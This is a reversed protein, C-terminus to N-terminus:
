HELIRVLDATLAALDPEAALCMGDKHATWFTGTWDIRIDENGELVEALMKWNM